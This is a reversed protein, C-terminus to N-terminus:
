KWKGVMKKLTSVGLLQMISKSPENLEQFQINAGNSPIYAITKAKNASKPVRAGIGLPSVWEQGYKGKRLTYKMSPFLQPIMTFLKKFDDSDLNSYRRNATGREERKPPLTIAQPVEAVPATYEYQYPTCFPNHYLREDYSILLNKSMSNTSKDMVAGFPLLLKNIDNEIAKFAGKHHLDWLERETPPTTRVLAKVGYRPSFFVTYIYPLSIFLKKIEEAQERSIKDIDIQVLGNYTAIDANTGGTFTGSPKICQMSQKFKGQEGEDQISRLTDVKSKWYGSAISELIKELNAEQRLPEVGQPIFVSSFFSCKPTYM